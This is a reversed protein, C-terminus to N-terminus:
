PYNKVKKSIFFNNEPNKTITYSNKQFNKLM